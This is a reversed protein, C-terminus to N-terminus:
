LARHALRLTSRLVPARLMSFKGLLMPRMSPPIRDRLWAVRQSSVIKSFELDGQRQKGDELYTMRTIEHTRLM